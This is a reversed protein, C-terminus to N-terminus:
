GDGEETEEFTVSPRKESENAVNPILLPHPTDAPHGEVDIRTQKRSARQKATNQNQGEMETMRTELTAVSGQIELLIDGLEGLKEFPDRPKADFSMLGASSRRGLDLDSDQMEALSMRSIPQSYSHPYVGGRPSSRGNPPKCLRMTEDLVEVNPSPIVSRRQRSRPLPRRKLSRLTQVLESNTMQFSEGGSTSMVSDRESGGPLMSSSVSVSERLAPMAFSRGFPADRTSHSCELPDSNDKTSSPTGPNDPPKEQKEESDKQVKTDDRERKQKEIQEKRTAIENQIQENFNPFEVLIKHFDEKDLRFLDCYTLAKISATRKTEILLAIEGFFGGKKITALYDGGPTLVDAYGHGMFFMEQGAEGAKIIYQGPAFVVNKLNEALAVKCGQDADRFMDVTSVFKIKVYLGIQQRMADPLGNIIQSYSSGVNQALIHSQFALVEQQLSRPINFYKLVALTEMMRQKRESEINHAQMIKSLKGIIAANAITGFIFLFCAYIRELETIVEVDGYGVTTVTKLLTM